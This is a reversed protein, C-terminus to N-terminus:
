IDEATTVLWWEGEVRSPMGILTVDYANPM